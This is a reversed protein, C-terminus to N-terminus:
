EKKTKQYWAFLEASQQDISTLIELLKDRIHKSTIEQSTLLSLWKSITQIVTETQSTSLGTAGMVRVIKKIDFPEKSGDRKIVQFDGM